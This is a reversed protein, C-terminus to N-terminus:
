ISAGAEQSKTQCRMKGQIGMVFQTSGIVAAIEEPTYMSLKKNKIPTLEVEDWKLEGWRDLYSSFVKNDKLEQPTLPRSKGQLDDVKFMPADAGLLGGKAFAAQVLPHGANDTTWQEYFERSQVPTGWVCDAAQQWAINAIFLKSLRLTRYLDRLYRVKGRSARAM